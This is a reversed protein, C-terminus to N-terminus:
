LLVGSAVNLAYCVVYLVFPFAMLEFIGPKVALGGDNEEAKQMFVDVYKERMIVIYLGYFAFASSILIYVGYIFDFVADGVLVTLHEELVIILNNFSHMLVSTKINGTVVVMFSAVLGFAFAYVSQTPSAHAVGFLTASAVVGFVLGYRRLASFMVGRFVYEEAIPVFVCVCLLSLIFAYIDFGDSVSVVAHGSAHASGDPLIFSYLSNSFLSVTITILQCLFFIPFLGKVTKGSVGFSEDSTIRSCKAFIMCPIVTTFFSVLMSLFEDFASSSMLDRAAVVATQKAMGFGTFVKVFGVQIETSYESFLRGLAISAIYSFLTIICLLVSVGCMAFYAKKKNRRANMETGPVCSYDM